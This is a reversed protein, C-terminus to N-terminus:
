VNEGEEKHPHTLKHYWRQELPLTKNEYITTAALLVVLVLPVFLYLNLWRLNENAGHLYLPDFNSVDEGKASLVARTFLFCGIFYALGIVSSVISPLTRFDVYGFVCLSICTYLLFVHSIISKIGVLNSWSPDDLFNFNLVLGFFGCFCGFIFLFTALIRTVKGNFFVAPIFLLNAIMMMNCPYVPLYYIDPLNEMTYPTGKFWEVFVPIYHTIATLLSFGMFVLAKQTNSLNRKRLFFFVFFMLVFNLVSFIELYLYNIAPYDMSM